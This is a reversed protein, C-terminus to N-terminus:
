TLHASSYCQMSWSHIHLQGPWVNQHAPPNSFSPWPLCQQFTIQLGLIGLVHVSRPCERILHDKLDCATMVPTRNSLSVTIFFLLQLPSVHSLSIKFPPSDVCVYVLSLCSASISLFPFSVVQRNKRCGSITKVLFWEAAENLNTMKILVGIFLLLVFKNM